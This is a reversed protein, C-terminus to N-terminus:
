NAAVPIRRRTCVCTGKRYKFIILANGFKLARESSDLLVIHLSGIVCMLFLICAFHLLKVHTILM